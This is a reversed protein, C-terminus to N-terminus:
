ENRLGLIFQQLHEPIHEAIKDREYIPEDGNFFYLMDERGGGEWYLTSVVFAKSMFSEEDDVPVKIEVHGFEMKENPFVAELSPTSIKTCFMDGIVLTKAKTVLYNAPNYKPSLAEDKCFFYSILKYDRSLVRGFNGIIAIFCFKAYEQGDIKQPVKNLFCAIIGLQPNHIRSMVDKVDFDEMPISEVNNRKYYRHDKAMHPAKDSRPVKVVYISKSFDDDKRIPYITLGDIAPQVYRALMSIYETTIINGDVFSYDSAVHDNEAVGYIIIGGDSNAFASLTKTVKDANEKSLANARKLELHVGEEAHNDILSQIDDITYNEQEHFDGMKKDHSEEVM